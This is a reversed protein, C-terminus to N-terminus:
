RQYVYPPQETAVVRLQYGNLSTIKTPFLNMGPRNLQGCRWASVVHPVSTGMATAYLKHTYM